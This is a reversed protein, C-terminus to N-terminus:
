KVSPIIMGCGYTTSVNFSIGFLDVKRILSHFTPELHHYRIKTRDYGNDM